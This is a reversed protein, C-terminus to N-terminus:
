SKPKHSELVRLGREEAITAANVLNAKEELAENLIGKISGKRIIETKWESIHGGYRIM